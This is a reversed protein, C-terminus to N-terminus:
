DGLLETQLSTIEAPNLKGNGAPSLAMGLFDREDEAKMRAAAEPLAIIQTLLQQGMRLYPTLDEGTMPHRMGSLVKDRMGLEVSSLAGVYHKWAPERMMRSYSAELELVVRPDALDADCKELWSTLPLGLRSQAAEVLVLLRAQDPDEPAPLGLLRELQRALFRALRRTAPGQPLPRRYLHAMRDLSDQM